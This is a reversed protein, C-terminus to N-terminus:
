IKKKLPLLILKPKNSFDLNPNYIFYLDFLLNPLQLVRKVPAQYFEDVIL